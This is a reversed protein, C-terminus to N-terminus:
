CSLCSINDYADWEDQDQKQGLVDDDIVVGSQNITILNNSSYLCNGNFFIKDCDKKTSICDHYMQVKFLHVIENNKTLGVQGGGLSDNPESTCNKTPDWASKHNVSWIKYAYLVRPDILYRWPMDPFDRFPDLGITNIKECSSKSCIPPPGKTMKNESHEGRRHGLHHAQCHFYIMSTVFLIFM